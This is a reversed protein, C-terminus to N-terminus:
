SSVQPYVLAHPPIVNGQMDVLEGSPLRKVKIKKVVKQKTHGLKLGQRVVVDACFINIFM